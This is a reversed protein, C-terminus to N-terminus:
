YLDCAIAIANIPSYIRVKDMLPMDTAKPYAALELQALGAPDFKLWKPVDGFYGGVIV